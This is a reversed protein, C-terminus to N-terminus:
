GSMVTVQIVEYEEDDDLHMGFRAMKSSADDWNVEM